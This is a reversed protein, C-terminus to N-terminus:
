CSGENTEGFRGLGTFSHLGRDDCAAGPELAHLYGVEALAEERAVRRGAACMRSCRRGRTVGGPV